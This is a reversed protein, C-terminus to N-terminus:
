GWAGHGTNKDTRGVGGARGFDVYYGISTDTGNPFTTASWYPGPVVETFPHGDPLALAGSSEFPSLLSALEEVTPLRWGRRGGKILASGFCTHYAGLWDTTLAGGSFSASSPTREWVLGTERDLVAQSGWDTLVVFRTAAPLKQDWAPEAYYPGNGSAAQSTDTISVLSTALGIVVLGYIFGSRRTKRM